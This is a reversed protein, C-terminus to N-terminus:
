TKLGNLHEEPVNEAYVGWDYNVCYRPKDIPISTERSGYTDPDYGIQMIDNWHTQIEVITGIKGECYGKVCLVKQGIEFM